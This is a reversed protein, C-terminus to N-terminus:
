NKDTFSFVSQGTRITNNIVATKCKNVVVTQDIEYTLMSMMSSTISPM